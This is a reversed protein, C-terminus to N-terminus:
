QNAKLKFIKWKETNTILDKPVAKLLPLKSLSQFHKKYFLNFGDFDSPSKQGYPSLYFVKNQLYNLFDRGSLFNFVCMSTSNKDVLSILDATVHSLNPHITFNFKKSLAKQQALAGGSWFYAAEFEELNAISDLDNSVLVKINLKKFKEFIIDHNNNILKMKKLLTIGETPDDMIVFLKDSLSNLIKEFNSEQGLNNRNQKYLFGTLSLLFVRTRNELNMQDIKTQISPHYADYNSSIKDDPIRDKVQDYITYSYIILNHSHKEPEWRRLFENNSYYEDISIDAKCAKKISERENNTIYGWWSLINVKELAYVNQSVSFILLYIMYPFKIQKM